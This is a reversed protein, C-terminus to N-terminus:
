QYLRNQKATKMQNNSVIQAIIKGDLMLNITMNGAAVGGSPNGGGVVRATPGSPMISAGTPVYMLEPGNEGVMSLGGPANVVGEAYGPVGQDHLLKAGAAVAAMHQAYLAAGAQV